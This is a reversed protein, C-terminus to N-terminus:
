TAILVKCRNLSVDMGLSTNILQDHAQMICHGMLVAPSLWYTTCEMSKDQFKLHQHQITWKYSTLHVLHVLMISVYSSFAMDVINSMISYIYKPILSTYWWLMEPMQLLGSEPLKVPKNVVPSSTFAQMKWAPSYGMATLQDDPLM